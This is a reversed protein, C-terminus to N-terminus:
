EPIIGCFVARSGDLSISATAVAQPHLSWVIFPSQDDLRCPASLRISGSRLAAYDFPGEVPGSSETDPDRASGRSEPRIKMRELLTEGGALYVFDGSQEAFVQSEGGNKTRLIWRNTGLQAIEFANPDAVLVDALLGDLLRRETVPWIRAALSRLVAEPPQAAPVPMRVAVRDGDVLFDAYEPLFPDIATRFEEHFPLDFQEVLARVPVGIAQLTGPRPKTILKTRRSRAILGTLPRRAELQTFPIKGDTRLVLGRRSLTGSATITEPLLHRAAELAPVPLERPWFTIQVPHHRLRGTLADDQAFLDRTRSPIFETSPDRDNGQVRVVFMRVEQGGVTFTMTPVVDPRESARQGIILALRGSGSGSFPDSGKEPQYWLLGLERIDPSRIVQALFERDYKKPVDGKLPIANLHTSLVRRITPTLNIHLYAIVHNPLHEAIGDRFPFVRRWLLAAAIFIVATLITAIVVRIRM